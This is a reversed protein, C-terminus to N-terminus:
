SRTDPAPDAPESPLPAAPEIPGPLDLVEAEALQGTPAPADAAAVGAVFAQADPALDRGEAAAEALLADAEAQLNALEAEIELRLIERQVEPDPPALAKSEGGAPLEDPYEGSIWSLLRRSGVPKKDGRVAAPDVATVGPLEHDEGSILIAGCSPCTATEPTVATSCWPCVADAPRDAPFSQDVM